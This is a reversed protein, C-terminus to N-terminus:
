VGTGRTLPDAANGRRRTAAARGRAWGHLQEAPHFILARTHQRLQRPLPVRPGPVGWRPVATRAQFARGLDSVTHGPFDVIVKYLDEIHHADSGGLALLGHTRNWHELKGVSRASGQFPTLLELGDIGLSEAVRALRHRGMGVWFTDVHPVVITGGAAKVQHVADKLSLFKPFARSRFPPEFCYVLLHKFAQITLELGWLPRVRSDPHEAVWRLAHHYARVDDHDTFGVVDIQGNAEVEDLIEDVTALGDSYTTHIHLIAQGL